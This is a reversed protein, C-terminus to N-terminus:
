ATRASASNALGAASQQKGTAAVAALLDHLLQAGVHPGLLAILAATLRQQPWAM